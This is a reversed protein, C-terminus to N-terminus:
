RSAPGEPHYVDGHIDALKEQLYACADRVGQNYVVPGLEEVFFDLLGEARFRSLEEDFQEAFHAQITRLLRSRRDESLQIRV